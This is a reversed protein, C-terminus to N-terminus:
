AGASAFEVKMEEVEHEAYELFVDLLGVVHEALKPVFTPAEGEETEEMRIGYSLWCLNQIEQALASVQYLGKELPQKRTLYALDQDLQYSLLKRSRRSLKQIRSDRRAAWVRVPKRLAELLVKTGKAAKESPTEMGEQQYLHKLRSVAGDKDPGEYKRGRYGGHLAAWAAGMLRHDPKGDAGTYPLHGEDGDTVLYKVGDKKKEKTLDVPKAASAAKLMEVSDILGQLQSRSVVAADETKKFKRLEVAGDAKVYTFHAVGLCPNDVLSVEAPDATYRMCGKYVPDPSLDGVINGGQSFGTYVGEDVKRWAEDDVVKFGMYIEKDIDRFEFGIGKGVASLQHMERLPFFNKGDTAKSMEAIVAQYYPKSGNYDCVEDDKDPVEATVVGWVERKAADVKIFPIFKRFKTTMAKAKEASITQVPDYENCCDGGAVLLHGDADRGEDKLQPDANVQKQLCVGAKGAAKEMHACHGCRFPGDVARVFGTAKTGAAKFAASAKANPGAVANAEAFARAEDHHRKYSSNWVELWQKRKAKPVSDPVESVSSYPM